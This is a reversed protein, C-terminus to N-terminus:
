IFVPNNQKTVIDISNAEKIISLHDFVIFIYKNAACGDM